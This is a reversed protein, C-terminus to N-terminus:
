YVFIRATGTASARLTITDVTNPTTGDYIIMASTLGVISYGQPVRGLGHTATFDQNAGLFVIEVFKGNINTEFDLQGNVKNTVDEAWRQLYTELDDKALKKFDTSATVRSM